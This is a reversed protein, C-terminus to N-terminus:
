HQLHARRPSSVARFRHLPDDRDRGGAACRAGLLDSRAEGRAEPAPRRARRILSSTVTDFRTSDAAFAPASPAAGSSAASRGGYRSAPTTASPASTSYTAVSAGVAWNQSVGSYM